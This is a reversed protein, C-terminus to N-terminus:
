ALRTVEVTVGLSQMGGGAYVGKLPPLDTYDRGRAVVVHREGAPIGNTPDFGWWSGLWAEVWAHSEGAVTVGVAPEKAPHLYGSVYRAPVGAERLLSLTVHAIDQCVGQGLHWADVASTQVGTSGPVYAVREKVLQSLALVVERPSGSTGAALARLEDDPETKASPRMLEVHDDSVADIQEWTVDGPAVPQSTDVVSTGTVQLETHPVHMDFVTVLTGWYDWYRMQAADPSTTVESSLTLQTLGTQPVLRAENYSSLVESDYRYGTTHRVQLRM